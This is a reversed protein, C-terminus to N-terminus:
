NETKLATNEKRLNEIEAKLGATEIQRVSKIERIEATLAHECL